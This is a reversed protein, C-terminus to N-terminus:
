GRAARIEAHVDSWGYNNAAEAAARRQRTNEEARMEHWAATIVKKRAEIDAAKREAEAKARNDTESKATASRPVVTSSAAARARYARLRSSGFLRPEHNTIM